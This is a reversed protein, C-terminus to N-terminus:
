PNTSNGYNPHGGWGLKERLTQYYSRAGTKILRLDEEAMTVTVRDAPKLEAYVQGDVTLATPLDIPNIVMEITGAAPIVLPRNTLTHPCIPTVVFARLDAELIPGGAALSHATSGVPTSVILGDGNYDTVHEGNIYLGISVLRSLAGRSVVADNLAVTDLLTQDGRTARCHIMMRPAIEFAGSEIAAIADDLEGPQVEALFGLRGVHVGLAPIRRPALARAARLLSGDGGIVIAFDADSVTLEARSMDIEVVEAFERLRPLVRQCESCVERRKRNGLLLVRTM